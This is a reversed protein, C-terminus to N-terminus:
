SQVCVFLCRVCVNAHINLFNIKVVSGLNLPIGDLAQEHISESEVIGCHHSLSGM